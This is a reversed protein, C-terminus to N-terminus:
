NPLGDKRSFKVTPLNRYYTDNFHVKDMLMTRERHWQELCEYGYWKFTLNFKNIFMEPRKIVWPM